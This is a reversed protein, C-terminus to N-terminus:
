VQVPTMVSGSRLIDKKTAKWTSSVQPQNQFQPTFRMWLGCFGLERKLESQIIQLNSLITRATRAYKSGLVKELECSQFYIFGDKSFGSSTGNAIMTFIWHFKKIRITKLWHWKEREYDNPSVTTNAFLTKPSTNRVLARINLNAPCTLQIYKDMPKCLYNCKFKFFTQFNKSRTPREPSLETMSGCPNQANSLPCKKM